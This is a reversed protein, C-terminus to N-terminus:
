NNNTTGIKKELIFQNVGEDVRNYTVNDMLEKVFFIGLGGAEREDLSAEIDPSEAQDPSFYVGDDRIILRARADDVDFSLSLMGPERGEYGYQIINTCLEDVSLKFAFVNEDSLGGHRAASEVFDRLEVLVNMHATRCIAHYGSDTPLKRRFSILTIDDFQNQDGIHKRLETNLEFLMSFISTWSYAINKLFREETFQKGSSNKADTTGDTYGVLFDGENLLIHEVRFDMNSFMGVAPGSPMLRHIIEGDKNIIV